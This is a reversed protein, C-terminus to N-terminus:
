EIDHNFNMIAYDFKDKFEDFQQLGTKHLMYKLVSKFNKRRRMLPEKAWKTQKYYELFKDKMPHKCDVYWPKVGVFHYIVPNSLAEKVDDKYDEYYFAAFERKYLYSTMINFRIPLIMKEDQCVYNVVDQDVYKPNNNDLYERFKQEIRQERIYQLNILMVGANIYEKDKKLKIRNYHSVGQNSDLVGAVAVNAIDINWLENLKDVVVADGDIYIVKSVEKPLISAAFLRYYTPKTFSHESPIYLKPMNVTNVNYYTLVINHGKPLSDRISNKDEETVTEDILLHCHIDIGVNNESISVLLVSCPMVFYHDLSVLVDM